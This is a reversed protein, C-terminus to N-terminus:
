HSYFLYKFSFLFLLGLLRITIFIIHEFEQYRLELFYDDHIFPSIRPRPGCDSTVSNNKLISSISEFFITIYSIKAENSPFAASNSSAISALCLLLQRFSFFYEKIAKSTVLANSADFYISLAGDFNLLNTNRLKLYCSISSKLMYQFADPGGAIAVWDAPLKVSIQEYGQLLM